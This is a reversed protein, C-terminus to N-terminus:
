RRQRQTVAETGASCDLELPNALKVIPPHNAQDYPKVFWDARAAFIMRFKPVGNISVRPVRVM